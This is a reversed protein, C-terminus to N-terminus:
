DILAAVSMRCNVNNGKEPTVPSVRHTRRESRIRTSEIEIRSNRQTIEREEENIARTRRRRPDTVPQGNAIRAPTVSFLHTARSTQHHSATPAAATSPLGNVAPKSPTKPPEQQPAAAAAAAAASAASTPQVGQLPESVRVENLAPANMDKGGTRRKKRHDGSFKSEDAGGDSDSAINKRKRSADRTWDEGDDHDEDEDVIFDEVEDTTTVDDFDDDMGEVLREDDKEESRTMDHSDQAGSFMGSRHKRPPM